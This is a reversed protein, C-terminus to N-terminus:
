LIMFGRYHHSLCTLMIIEDMSDLQVEEQTYTFLEVRSLILM